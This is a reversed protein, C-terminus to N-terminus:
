APLNIRIATPVPMVPFLHLHMKASVAFLRGFFVTLAFASVALAFHRPPM